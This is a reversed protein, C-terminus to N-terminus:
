GIRVPLEKCTLKCQDCKEQFEEPNARIQGADEIWNDCPDVGVVDLKEGDIFLYMKRVIPAYGCKVPVPQIRCCVRCYLTKAQCM